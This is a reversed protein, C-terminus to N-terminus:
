LPTLPGKPLPVEAALLQQRRGPLVAWVGAKWTDDARGWAVIEDLTRACGECLGLTPHMRCVNICPSPVTM